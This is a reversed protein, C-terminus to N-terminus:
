IFQELKVNTFDHVYPHESQAQGDRILHLTKLGAAKAADLEAAVDSLFLVESADFPLQEIITNYAAQEQKAGVKTDFFDNFLARIDGYDSYKFLLQQARVSGSSYVYLAINQAHQAQLFDFADPYLHGKFDGHEYGTQWILGQLQKLPTIKKDEEIWTLLVSIVRELDANPEDIITKVAAIQEAVHAKKTNLRLFTPLQKEAYPFLVDKVFSIRTITGEIDTLIAKIM